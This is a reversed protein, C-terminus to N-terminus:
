GDPALSRETKTLPFYTHYDYADTSLHIPIFIYLLYVAASWCVVLRSENFKNIHAAELAQDLPLVKILKCEPDTDCEESLISMRRLKELADSVEFDIATDIAERRSVYSCPYFQDKITQM